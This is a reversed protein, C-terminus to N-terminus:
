HPLTGDSHRFSHPMAGPTPSHELGGTSGPTRLAVAARRM